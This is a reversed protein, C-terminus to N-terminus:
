EGLKNKIYTDIVMRNPTNRRHLHNLTFGYKSTCSRTWDLPSQTVGCARACTYFWNSVTKSIGYKRENEENLTVALRGAKEHDTWSNYWGVLNDNDPMVETTTYGYKQPDKDIHSMWDWEPRYRQIYLPNYYLSDLNQLALENNQRIVQESDGELGVIFGGFTYINPNVEKIQQLTQVIKQASAGKRIYRNANYNMSEIGFFLSHVGSESLTEIRYQKNHLMDVRAFGAIHPTFDLEKVATRLVEMKSDEENITDDGAFFHTVGAEKAANFYNVLADVQQHTPNKIGRLDYSCFTCDFKCGMSIEFVAVDRQDWHGDPYFYHTIPPDIDTTDINVICPKNLQDMLDFLEGSEAHEKFKNISRGCYILDLFKYSAYVDAEYDKIGGGIVRVDPHNDKITNVFNAADHKNNAKNFLTFSFMLVLKKGQASKLVHNVLQEKDWYTFYEIVTSDYGLTKLHHDITHAPVPRNHLLHNVFWANSGSPNMIIFKIDNM